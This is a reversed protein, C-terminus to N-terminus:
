SNLEFIPYLYLKEWIYIICYIVTIISVETCPYITNLIIFFQMNKQDKVMHIVALYIKPFAHLNPLLIFMVVLKMIYIFHESFM